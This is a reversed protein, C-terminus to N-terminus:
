MQKDGKKDREIRENGGIDKEYRREMGANGRKDRGEEGKSTIKTDKQEGQINRCERRGRKKWGIGKIRGGYNM